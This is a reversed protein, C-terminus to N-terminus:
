EGEELNRNLVGFQKNARQCMSLLAQQHIEGMEKEDVVETM